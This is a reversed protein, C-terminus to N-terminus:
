RNKKKTCFTDRSLETHVMTLSRYVEYGCFKYTYVKILSAKATDLSPCVSNVNSYM